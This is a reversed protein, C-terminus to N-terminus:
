DEAAAPAPTIGALIRAAMAGALGDQRAAVQELVRRVEPLDRANVTLSWLAADALVGALAKEQVSPDRGAVALLAQLKEPLVWGALM